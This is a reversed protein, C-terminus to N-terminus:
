RRMCRTSCGGSSQGSPHPLAGRVAQNHLHHSKSLVHIIFRRAEDLRGRAYETLALQYMAMDRLTSSLLTRLLGAAEARDREMSSKGLSCALEFRREESLPDEAYLGRALSAVNSLVFEITLHYFRIDDQVAPHSQAAIFEDFTELVFLSYHQTSPITVLIPV